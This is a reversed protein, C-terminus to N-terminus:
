SAPYPLTSAVSLDRAVGKTIRCAAFHGQLGFNAAWNIGGVICQNQTVNAASTADVGLQVQDVWIQVTTGSRRCGVDYWQGTNPTWAPNLVSGGALTLNLNNTNPRWFQFPSSGSQGVIVFVQNGTWAAFRLRIEVTFDGTGFAFDASSAMQADDLSGDLLLSSTLGTPATADDWVIAGESTVTKASASQDTITTTGDAGNNNGILAVVSAFDPDTAAVSLGNWTKWSAKALGNYSKLSASAIGNWAKLTAM